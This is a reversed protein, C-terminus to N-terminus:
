DKLDSAAAVQIFREAVERAPVPGPDLAPTLDRTKVRM